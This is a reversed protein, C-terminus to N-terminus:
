REVAYLYTCCDIFFDDDLLSLSDKECFVVKYYIYKDTIKEIKVEICILNSMMDHEEGICPIDSFSKVIKANGSFKISM